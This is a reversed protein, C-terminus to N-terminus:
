SIGKWYIKVYSDANEGENIETEPPTIYSQDELLLLHSKQGSFYFDSKTCRFNALMLILLVTCEICCGLLGEINLDLALFVTEAQFAM